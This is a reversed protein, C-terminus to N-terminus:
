YNREKRKQKRGVNIQQNQAIFTGQTKIQLNLPPQKLEKLLAISTIM